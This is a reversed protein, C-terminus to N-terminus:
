IYLCLTRTVEVNDSMGYELKFNSQVNHLQIKPRNNVQSSKTDYAMHWYSASRVQSNLKLNCTYFWTNCMYEQSSMSHNAPQQCLHHLVHVSYFHSYSPLSRCCYNSLNTLVLKCLYCMKTVIAKQFRSLCGAFCLVCALHNILRAGVICRSQAPSTTTSTDVTLLRVTYTIDM